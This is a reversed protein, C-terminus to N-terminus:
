AWTREALGVTARTGPKMQPSTAEANMDLAVSAAGLLDEVHMM